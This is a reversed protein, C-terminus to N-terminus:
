SLFYDVTNKGDGTASSFDLIHRVVSSSIEVFHHYRMRYGLYTLQCEM